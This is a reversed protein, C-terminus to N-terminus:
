PAFRIIAYYDGINNFDTFREIYWSKVGRNEIYLKYLEYWDLQQEIMPFKKKKDFAISKVDFENEECFDDFDEKQIIPCAVLPNAYVCNPSAGVIVTHKDLKDQGVIIRQIPNHFFLKPVHETDSTIIFNANTGGFTCLRIYKMQYYLIAAMERQWSVTGYDSGYIRKPHSYIKGYEWIHNLVEDGIREDPILNDLIVQNDDGMRKRVAVKQIFRYRDNVTWDDPVGRCTFFLHSNRIFGRETLIPQIGVCKSWDRGALRLSVQATRSTCRHHRKAQTM